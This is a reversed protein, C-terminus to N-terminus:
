SRESLVSKAEELGARRKRYRINLMEILLSFGMTFYVYGKEFHRGTGEAVLLVGIMVLFALALIKISPHGEVFDGIPGAFALMVVIAMLVAIVMISLHEVMGVATIVSDLSFIVDLIMIQFLIMGMSAVKGAAALESEEAAEVKDYIELTAKGILFLGGLVLILDKGSVEHGLLSFLPETLKVVWSLTALLVLRSVLAVLLGLRRTRLQKARPLRGALITIFVLNDIGLVIELVALTLLAVWTEPQAFLELM